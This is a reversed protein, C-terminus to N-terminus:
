GGLLGAADVPEPRGSRLSDLARLTALTTAVQSQLPIAPEGRRVAEVFAAVEEAQGKGGARRRRRRRHDYLEVATFNDLVAGRGAGLIELREKAMAKGGRAVYAVSGISGDAFRLTILVNDQPLLAPDDGGIRVAHVEIPDAGCLFQMLDIFHCAEGVIRGGGVEPDQIWHDPPIEGANVRYTMVLPGPERGFHRAVLAAAPSFRRNFGTQVVPLGAGASLERALACIRELEPETLCLPKEVFVHRGARLAALVGPGHRDHRTAIVVAATEPDEVVAEVSDVARAFGYRDGADRATLGGRTSVATLRVGAHGRFHPLLFAQAYSGAGLCGVGLRDGTPPAAGALEVTGGPGARRADLDAPAGAPYELLVAAYPESRAAIMEYARPAEAFPFRHTVLRLPDIRGAAALDLFAELNRRETWRVLGYPYDLGHEEYLPDYRGPGYSCSVSFALEKRYYDERPLDMGVAGVVVVRGRQRSVRGALAVPESSATAACILVLDAGHGGTFERVAEEVPDEGLRVAADVSGSDVALRVAEAAVDAGVVRCGSARLLQGALQGILGLGIVLAREGLTPAALRIGQLAIAGLTAMAAADSGVGAPVPATLNVPVVVEDAHNAFGGGACAVLDGARLGAVDPAVEVVVGALSYGLPQAGQLKARVKRLTERLGLSRAMDIVARAQEPRARAKGLLSQKGAAVKGGETGPSIASHLTQVRVCGPPLAPPPAELLEVSGDALRLALIKM